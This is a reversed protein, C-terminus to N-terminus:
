IAPRGPPPSGAPAALPRVAPSAPQAEGPPAAGAPPSSPGEAAEAQGTATPGPQEARGSRRPSEALGPFDKAHVSAEGRESTAPTEGTTARGSEAVDQGQGARAVAAPWAPEGAAQPAPGEDFGAGTQPAAGPLPFRSLGARPVDEGPLRPAPAAFAVGGGATGSPQGGGSSAPAPPPPLPPPLMIEPRVEGRQGRPLPHLVRELESLLAAVLYADERPDAM